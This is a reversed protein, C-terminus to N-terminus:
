DIERIKIERGYKFETILNRDTIIEFPRGIKADVLLSLIPTHLRCFGELLRTDDDTFLPKKAPSSKILERVSEQKDLAARWDFDACIAFSGYLYAHAFVSTATYIADGSGTTNFALLGGPAMRSRVLTLFEKSLLLSMYARWHHSTNMIVLDYTGEPINRLFKRGDGIYITTRPDNMAEKQKPYDDMLKLYGPNIEVVDIREVGPFGSVLYNWTGISLGIELVRKPNPRLAALVVVRNLSNSNVHPDVNARGDYRNGGTIIDGLKEDKYSAVIGQRTEVVRSVDLKYEDSALSRVLWNDSRALAIVNAIGIVFCM